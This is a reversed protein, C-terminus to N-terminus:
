LIASLLQPCVSVPRCKSKTQWNTSLFVLRCSFKSLVNIMSTFEATGASRIRNNKFDEMIIFEVDKKKKNLSHFPFLLEFMTVQAKCNEM